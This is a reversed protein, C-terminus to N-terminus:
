GFWELKWPGKYQREGIWAVIAVALVLDDHAGERWTGFTENASPTIRVQFTTL